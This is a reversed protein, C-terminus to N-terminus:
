RCDLLKAMGEYRVGDDPEYHSYSYESFGVSKYLSKADGNRPDVLLGLLPAIPKGKAVRERYLTQAEGILHKCIFTGYGKRKEQKQVGLNPLILVPKKPEEPFLIPWNTVGLSGYGVLAYNVYYLWIKTGRKRMNTVADGSKIWENITIAWPEDGCDFSQVEPLSLSEEVFPKLSPQTLM